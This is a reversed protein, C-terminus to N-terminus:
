TNQKVGKLMYGAGVITKIMPSDFDKDIKRRLQHMYVEVINSDPDFSMEWGNELLQNRSLVKNANRALYELLLYEKSTLNIEKGGRSVKRGAPDIVLDDIMMVASGTGATKRQVIRIRALLEEWEFPKKIYDVAGMDLGQVVQSTDALASVIIVPVNINFARLNKMVEFGNTTPLMLDLLILDYDEMAAKELAAAGDHCVTTLYGAQRLGKDIYGALKREDEVILIKM